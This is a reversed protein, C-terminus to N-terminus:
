KEYFRKRFERWKRSLGHRELIRGLYGKDIEAEELLQTMRARDKPRDTKLCIALLHEARLVKTATKRYRMQAAETVAEEVLDNYVPIFQVPLGGIVVHERHARYGKKRLYEYIPSLSILKGPAQTLLIFVDLDYTLVPETYFLGAIGGGIAYGAIIGEKELENLVKLTKEM